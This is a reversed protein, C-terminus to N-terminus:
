WKAGKNRQMAIECLSISNVDKHRDNRQFDMCIYSTSKKKDKRSASL